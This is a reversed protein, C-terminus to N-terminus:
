QIKLYYLITDDFCDSYHAVHLDFNAQTYGSEELLAPIKILDDPVHYAAIALDPGTSLLRPCGLFAPIEAGEIDIKILDIKEDIVADLPAAELEGDDAESVNIMGGRVESFHLRCKHSWAAQAVIRVGGSFAQAVDTISNFLSTNAEVAVGRTVSLRRQAQQLTDGNYAGIDLFSLYDRYSYQELVDFWMDVNAKRVAILDHPDLSLRFSLISTLISRSQPHLSSYLKYLSKKNELIFISLERSKHALHPTDFFYAAEQYFIYNQGVLHAQEIQAQCAGLIIGDDSQQLETLTNFIKFGDKEAMHRAKANSDYVGIEIGSGSAIHSALSRGKGGYGFLNLKKTAFLRDLTYLRTALRHQASVLIADFEDFSLLNLHTM